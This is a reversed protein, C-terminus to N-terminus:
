KLRGMEDIMQVSIFLNKMEPLTKIFKKIITKAVEDSAANHDIKLSLGDKAVVHFKVNEIEVQDIKESLIDIKACGIQLM